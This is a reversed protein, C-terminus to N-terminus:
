ARNMTSLIIKLAEEDTLGIHHNLGDAWAKAEGQSDFNKGGIPNYGSDNAVAVALGYHEKGCVTVFAYRKGAFQGAVTQDIIAAELHESTISM